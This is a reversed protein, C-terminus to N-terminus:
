VQRGKRFWEAYESIGRELTYEPQFGLEKKALSIDLMFSRPFPTYGPGIEVNKPCSFKKVTRLVDMFRYPRGGAINFVKNKLDRAKYLLLIGKVADKIYTFDAQQDGGSELSMNDLGELPGFLVKLFGPFGSPLAPPGYLYYLRATRFDIGWHNEYQEGLLEASAKSSGYLNSPQISTENESPGEANGYVAGSSTFVIKKVGFIRSAELINLTGIINVAVNRHPNDLFYFATIAATHIIGEIKSGHQHFVDALRPYDLINGQVFAVKQMDESNLQPPHIDYLIVDEGESLLSKVVWYGVFGCGTVLVSM